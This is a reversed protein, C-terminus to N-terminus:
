WCAIVDDSPKMYLQITQEPQLHRRATHRRAADTAADADIVDALQVAALVLLRLVLDAQHAAVPREAVVEVGDRALRALGEEAAVGELYAHAAPSAHTRTRTHQIRPHCRAQTIM